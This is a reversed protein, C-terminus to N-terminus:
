ATILRRPALYDRVALLTLVAIALWIYTDYDHLRTVFVLLVAVFAPWANGRVALYVLVPVSWVWHHLWSVPSVLLGAAAITFLAALDDRTRRAVFVAVAVTVAALTAWLVTELGPALGLDRLLGKLSQNTSLSLDGIREPNLLSHFWYQVSDKPAALFGVVVLAAFTAVSTVAARRDRRVLFYLVFIAPTLKIAAAVGVLVGRWRRDTVLLCDVVILGLLFLNIQGYGFTMWVPDLTLAGIAAVPGATWKLGPRVKGVVAVCVVTLVVFGSAVVLPNQLGEPVVSLGSFLVAAIPPYTFPLDPGGLPKAFGDVYLPLRHLLADGGNRYVRLDLSWGQPRSLVYALTAVMVAAWAVVVRKAGRDLQM